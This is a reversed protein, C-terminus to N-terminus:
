AAAAFGRVALYAAMEPWGAGLWVYEGTRFPRAGALLAEAEEARVCAELLHARVIRLGRVVDATTTREIEGWSEELARLGAGPDGRRALVIAQAARHLRSLSALKRSRRSAEAIWADAPQLQGDLAFTLALCASLIPRYYGVRLREAGAFAELAGHLDGLSLRALGLDFLVAAQDLPTGTGTLQAFIREAAAADGAALRDLGEKERAGRNRRKWWCAICFIPLGAVLLGISALAMRGLLPVPGEPRVMEWATALIAALALLAAWPMLWRLRNEWRSRELRSRPPLPLRSARSM